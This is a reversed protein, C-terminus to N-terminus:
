VGSRCSVGTVIPGDPSALISDDFLPRDCCAFHWAQCLYLLTNFKASDGRLEPQRTILHAAVDRSRVLEECGCVVAGDMIM